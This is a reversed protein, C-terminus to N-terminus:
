ARGRAVHPLELEERAPRPAGRRGATAAALVSDARQTFAAQPHATNPASRHPDHADGGLLGFRRLSSGRKASRFPHGQGAAWESCDGHQWRAALTLLALGSEEGGSAVLRVCLRASHRYYAGNTFRTAEAAQARGRRAPEWAVGLHPRRGGCGRVSNCLQLRAERSPQGPDHARRRVPRRRRIGLRPLLLATGWGQARGDFTASIPAPVRRARVRDRRRHGPLPGHAGGM